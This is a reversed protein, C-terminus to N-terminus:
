KIFVQNASKCQGGFRREAFERAQPPNNAEVIERIPPNGDKFTIVCRYTKM